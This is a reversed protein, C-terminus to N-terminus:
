VAELGHRIKEAAEALEVRLPRAFCQETIKLGFGDGQFRPFVHLHVHFVEQGAVEGDALFFNVGECRLGSTRLGAALRQAIRFLHAGTDEPLDALDGSHANPIVLVHGPNIPQIDMFASVLADQYVFAAEAKGAAINCFICKSM